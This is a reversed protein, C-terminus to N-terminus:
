HGSLLHSQLWLSLFIREFELLSILNFFFVQRPAHLCQLHYWGREELYLFYVQPTLYPVPCIHVNDMNTLCSLCIEPYFECTM